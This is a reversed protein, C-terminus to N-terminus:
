IYILSAVLIEMCVVNAVTFYHLTPILLDTARPWATNAHKGHKISRDVDLFVVWRLLKLFSLLMLCPLSAFVAM